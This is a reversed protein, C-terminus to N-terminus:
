LGYSTCRQVSGNDSNWTVTGLVKQNSSGVMGIKPHFNESEIQTHKNNNRSKNTKFATNNVLGSILNLIM